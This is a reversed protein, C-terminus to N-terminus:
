FKQGLLNEDKRNFNSPDSETLSGHSFLDGYSIMWQNINFTSVVHKLLLFLKLLSFSFQETKIPTALEM